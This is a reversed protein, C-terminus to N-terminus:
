YSMLLIEKQRIDECTEVLGTFSEMAEPSASDFGDHKLVMAISRQIGARANAHQTPLLSKIAQADKSEPVEDEVVVATKADTTKADAAKVDATKADATKADAMKVDLEKEDVNEVRVRKPDPQDLAEDSPSLSRKPTMIATM